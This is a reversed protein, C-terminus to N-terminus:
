PGNGAGGDSGYEHGTLGLNSLYFDTAKIVMHHSSSLMVLM